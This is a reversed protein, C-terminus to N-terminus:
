QAMTTSKIHLCVSPDMGMHPAITGNNHEQHTLLLGWLKLKYNEFIQNQGNVRNEWVMKLIELVCYRLWTSVFPFSMLVNPHLNFKKKWSAVTNLNLVVLISGTKVGSKWELKFFLFFLIFYFPDGLHTVWTCTSSRVCPSFSNCICFLTCTILSRIL